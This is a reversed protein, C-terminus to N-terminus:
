NPTPVQVVLSLDLGDARLGSLRVRGGLESRPFLVLLESTAGPEVTARGWTGTTEVSDGVRDPELVATFGFVEVAVEARNDIEIVLFLDGDITRYASGVRASVGDRDDVPGEGTIRGALPVGDIAFSVVRGSAPETVVDTFTVCAREADCLEVGSPGQVVSRPGTAGLLGRVVAQHGAYRIADSGPMAAGEPSTGALSGIAALGDFYAATLDPALTVTTPVPTVVTTSTTPTTDDGGSCASLCCVVVVPILPSKRM